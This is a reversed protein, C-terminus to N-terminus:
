QRKVKLHAVFEQLAAAENGTALSKAIEAEAIAEEIRGMQEYLLALSKHGTFDNPAIEVARRYAEEAQRFDGKAKYADGLLLHTQTSWNNLSLSKQYKDIAQDYEGKLFHVQGWENFIRPDHLRLVQAQRYYALAQDLKETREQPDTLMEGWVRYLLGLKSVPDPNIPNIQRGRELVSRAQNLLASRQTMDSATKAKEVYAGALFLCYFDQYPTIKLAREFHAISEDWLGRNAYALGQKYVIDARVPNLNLKFVLLGTGMILLPYVWWHLEPQLRVPKPVARALVVAIIIVTLFLYLYYFIFVSTGGGQMLFVHAILFAIFWGLSTLLPAKQITDALTVIGEGAEIAAITSCFVWVTIFFGLLAWRQEQSNVPNGILAFGMTALALGVLLSLSVLSAAQVSAGTPAGEPRRKRRAAGKRRRSHQKDSAQLSMTHALTTRGQLHLAVVAVLAAYIWFFIRTVVIAIGFQVEIFHALIASLLAILLLQLNSTPSQVITKLSKHFASIVLYIGLALLIGASVGLGAFRWERELLRPLMGGTLGGALHLLIFLNRGRYNRILGLAKMGYYFVSGLFFLHAALGVFGTTALIDLIENHSRDFTEGPKLSALEAPLHQNLAVIMTDPGYGILTRWPDAAILHTAGEWALIRQQVTRSELNLLGSLREFSPISAFSIDSLNLVVLFLCVLGAGGLLVSALKRRGGSAAVLLLFFFIGGLLGLLPGRSQTFLICLLQSALLLTYCGTLIYLPATGKGMRITLLLQVLRAVTLPVVMILYAAVFIPNGMTSIARVTVEAGVNTWAIPDLGYHQMIGYLSVPLSAFLIVTILRHLQSRHRLVYLISLFVVIYSLSTYSGQVRHYSGWFSLRPSISTITTLIYVIALLLAPLVLPTRSQRWKGVESIRIAWALTMVLVISCMLAIKDPEFSRHSYINFSLPVVVTLAMWGAEIVKRCLISLGTETIRNEEM